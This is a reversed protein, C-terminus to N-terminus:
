IGTIADGLLKVGFVLLLVSVVAADNAVLWGRMRELTAAGREGTLLRYGVALAVSSSAVATYLAILTAQDTGPLGESALVTAAAANMLLNKPNLGGLLTASGFAGVPGITDMRAMWGPMAPEEGPSPRGRWKKVAAALLLAGLLFRLVTATTSSADNGGLLGGVEALAVLLALGGAVGVIWGLLFALGNAVARGSFLMAIVAVIPIPSLAIVLAFPLMQGFADTM